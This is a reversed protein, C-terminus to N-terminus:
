LTFYADVGFQHILFIDTKNVMDLLPGLVWSSSWWRWAIINYMKVFWVLRILRFCIAVAGSM